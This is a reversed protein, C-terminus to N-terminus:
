NKGFTLANELAKLIVKSSYTAGSIIDVQLSQEKIVEDTIAEAEGGQGNIHELILIETIKHGEVTVNLKVTVPFVSYNGEYVGDDVTELAVNPSPMQVLNNLKYQTYVTFGAIFLAIVLVILLIIKFIPKLAIM